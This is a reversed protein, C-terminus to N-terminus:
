PADAGSDCTLTYVDGHFPLHANGLTGIVEYGKKKCFFAPSLPHEEDMKQEDTMESYFIGIADPNTENEQYFAVKFIAEPLDTGPNVAEGSGGSEGGPSAENSLDGGIPDPTPSPLPTSSSPLPTNVEEPGEAHFHITKFNADSDQTVVKTRKSSTTTEQSNQGCSISLLTALISPIVLKM